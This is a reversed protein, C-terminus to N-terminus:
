FGPNPVLKRANIMRTIDIGLEHATEVVVGLFKSTGIGVAKCLQDLSAQKRDKRPLANWRSALEQVKEDQSFRALDIVNELGGPLFSAFYDLGESLSRLPNLKPRQTRNAMANRKQLGRALHWGASGPLRVPR